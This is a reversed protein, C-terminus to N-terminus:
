AAQKQEKGPTLNDVVVVGVVDGVVNLTTRGMDFLRDVGMIIAIGEVTSLATLAVYIVVTLFSVRGTAIFIPIIFTIALFLLKSLYTHMTLHLAKFKAFTVIAQLFYLGFCVATLILVRTEIILPSIILGGVACGFFLIDGASDLRSGLVSELHWRRAIRGDLVDTLFIFFYLPLFIAPRYVIAPILLCPSLIIRAASLINPIQRKM